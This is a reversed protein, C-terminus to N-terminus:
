GLGWAATYIENKCFAAFKKVRQPVTLKEPLVRSRPTPENSLQFTLNLIEHETITLLGAPPRL